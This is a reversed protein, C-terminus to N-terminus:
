TSQSSLTNKRRNEEEYLKDARNTKKHVMIIVLIYVIWIVVSGWRNHWALIICLPLVLLIQIYNFRLFNDKWFVYREEYTLPKKAM